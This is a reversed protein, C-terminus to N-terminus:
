SYYEPILKLTDLQDPDHGFIVKASPFQDTFSRINELAASAQELDGIPPIKERFGTERHSADFTLLIPGDESNLIVSIHGPSHGATKIIFLSGDTFFDWVQDFPPVSLNYQMPQLLFDKFHSKVYGKFLSFPAKAAKLEDKDVFVSVSTNSQFSPLASPHDLHLHSLIINQIDNPAVNITKLQSVVDKNRDMRTKVIKGLLWGRNGSTSNVFSHHLGLDLLTKGKSPHDVLFSFVPTMRTDKPMTKSKASKKNFHINGSMHTYGIHMIFLKLKTPSNFCDNWTKM